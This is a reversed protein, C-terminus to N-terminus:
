ESLLLGVVLINYYNYARNVVLEVLGIYPRNNVVLRGVKGSGVEILAMLLKIAMMDVKLSRLAKTM